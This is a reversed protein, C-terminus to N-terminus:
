LTGDGLFFGFVFLFTVPIINLPYVVKPISGLLKTPSAVLGLNVLKDQIGLLYRSPFGTLTYALYILEVKLIDESNGSKLLKM